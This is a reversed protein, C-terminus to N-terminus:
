AHTDEGLKDLMVALESTPLSSCDIGRQLAIIYGHIIRKLRLADERWFHRIEYPKDTSMVRSTIKIDGFIPGVTATVSLLDEIRSSVVEGARWFSRKTVTLKARDVTLTDPFLNLITTAQALVENSGSIAETLQQRAEDPSLQKVQQEVLPYPPPSQQPLTDTVSPPQQRGSKDM